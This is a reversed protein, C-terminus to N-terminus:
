NLNCHVTLSIFSLSKKGAGPHLAGKCLATVGSSVTVSILARLDEVSLWGLSVCPSVCPIVLSHNGHGSTLWNRRRM